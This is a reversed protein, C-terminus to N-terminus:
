MEVSVADVFVSINKKKSMMIVFNFLRKLWSIVHFHRHGLHVGALPKLTQKLPDLYDVRMVLTLCRIEQTQRKKTANQIYLAIVEEMNRILPLAM